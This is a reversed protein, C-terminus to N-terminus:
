LVDFLLDIEERTALSEGVSLFSLLTIPQNVASAAFTKHHGDLLYHALCWHETVDPDDHWVAPRKVDLVSLGFATPKKGLGLQQKYENVTEHSLLTAPVMPIIFEFLGNKKLFTRTTSRFYEIRPDHPLGWFPDIGWLDVQDKTFYDDPSGLAATRLNVELLSFRYDGNPLIQKLAEIVDDDLEDIGDRLRASVDAASIKQNAGALREFFFACTGCINGIHYAKKGEISLYRDWEEWDEDGTTEFALISNSGTISTRATRLVTSM